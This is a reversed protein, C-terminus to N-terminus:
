KVFFFRLLAIWFPPFVAGSCRFVDLVIFSKSEVVRTRQLYCGVQRFGGLVGPFGRSKIGAESSRKEQYQNVVTKIWRSFPMGITPGQVLDTVLCCRRRMNTMRECGNCVIISRFFFRWHIIWMRNTCLEIHMARTGQVTIKEFNNGKSIEIERLRQMIPRLMQFRKGNELIVLTCPRSQRWAWSNNDFIHQMKICERRDFHKVGERRGKNWEIPRVLLLEM